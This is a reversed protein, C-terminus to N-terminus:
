FIWHKSLKKLTVCQPQNDKANQLYWKTQFQIIKYKIRGHHLRIISVRGTFQIYLIPGLLRAQPKWVTQFYHSSKKAKENTNRKPPPDM